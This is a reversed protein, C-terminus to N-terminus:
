RRAPRTYFGGYADAFSQEVPLAAHRHDPPLARYWMAGDGAIWEGGVERVARTILDITGPLNELLYVASTKGQAAIWATAEDLTTAGPIHRWRYRSDDDANRYYFM